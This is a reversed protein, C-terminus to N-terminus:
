VHSCGVKAISPMSLNVVGSSGATPTDFLTLVLQFRGNRPIAVWNEPQATASLHISFSGDAERLVTRSNLASPLDQSVPVINDFPDTVYLSWLRAAPTQGTLKYDCSADLPQNTSDTKATFSLGEATGYLLKGARARHSKAYPDADGTQLRPFAEWPGLKIAGFGSTANLAYVSITVGGGFAVILMLAVFLPFRFM